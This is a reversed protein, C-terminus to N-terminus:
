RGPGRSSATARNRRSWPSPPAPRGSPARYTAYYPAVVIAHDGPDLVGQVAAYLAAQGGATAIVQAASTGVGTSRTAIEAMAERLRPM